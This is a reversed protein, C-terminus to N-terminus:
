LDEWEKPYALGLSTAFLSNKNQSLWGPQLVKKIFEKYKSNWKYINITGGNERPQCSGYGLPIGAGADDFWICVQTDSTVGHTTGKSWGMIESDLQSVRTIEGSVPFQIAFQVMAKKMADFVAEKLALAEDEPSWGALYKGTVISRVYKRTSSGEVSFSRGTASDKADIISFDIKVSYTNITTGDAKFESQGGILMNATLRLDIGYTDRESYEIEGIDALEDLKARTNAGSQIMKIDFRKIKGMLTELHIRSSTELNRSIKVANTTDTDSISRVDNFDAFMRLKRFSTEQFYNEPLKMEESFNQLDGKSVYGKSGPTKVPGKTSKTSQCSILALTLPVVLFIPFINKMFALAPLLFYGAQV